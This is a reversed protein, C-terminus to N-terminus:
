GTITVRKARITTVPSDDEDKNWKSQPIIKGTVSVSEADDLAVDYRGETRVRKGAADYVKTKKTFIVDADQDVIDNDQSNFRKPLNFIKTVTVNLTNSAGDYSDADASFRWVRSVFGAKLTPARHDAEKDGARGSDDAGSKGHSDPADNGPTGPAPSGPGTGPQVPQQPPQPGPFLLKACPAEWTPQVGAPCPPLKCPALLTPLVGPACAPFLGLVTQAHAPGAFAATSVLASAALACLGLRFSPM